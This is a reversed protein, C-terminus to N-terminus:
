AVELEACILQESGSRRQHLRDETPIRQRVPQAVAQCFEM